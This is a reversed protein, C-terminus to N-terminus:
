AFTSVVWEITVLWGTTARVEIAVVLALEGVTTSVAASVWGSICVAWDWGCAWTCCGRAEICDCDWPCDSTTETGRTFVDKLGWWPIVPLVAAPTVTGTVTGSLLLLRPLPSSRIDTILPPVTM